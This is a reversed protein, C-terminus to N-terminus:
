ILQNTEPLKLLLLRHWHITTNRSSISESFSVNFVLNIFYDLVEYRIKDRFILLGCAVLTLALFVSLLVTTLNPPRDTETMPVTNKVRKSVLESKEEITKNNPENTIITTKQSIIEERYDVDSKINGETCNAEDSGDECNKLGDCRFWERLCTGDSCKFYPCTIQPVCVVRRLDSKGLERGNGCTCDVNGNILPPLFSKDPYLPHCIDSCFGKKRACPDGHRELSASYEVIPMDQPIKDSEYEKIFNKVPYQAGAWYIVGDNSTFYIDGYEARLAMRNVRPSHKTDLIFEEGTDFSWVVTRRGIMMIVLCDKEHVRIEVTDTALDFTANLPTVNLLKGRSSVRIMNLGGEIVTVVFLSENKYEMCMALLTYESVLQFITSQFNTAISFTEITGRMTDLWYLNEVNRHIFMSSVKGIAKVPLEVVEKLHHPTVKLLRQKDNDAAYINGTIHSYALRSSTYNGLDINHYKKVNPTSDMTFNVLYLHHHYGLLLLNTWKDTWGKVIDKTEPMVCSYRHYKSLLCMYLCPSKKCPKNEDTPDTQILSHHAYLAHLGDKELLVTKNTWSTKNVAFLQSNKKTTWYVTSHSVQINLPIFDDARFTIKQYQTGKLSLSEVVRRHSDVWFIRSSPHDITLGNPWILDENWFTQVSSGDMSAKGICPKMGWDTWFMEGTVPSLAIARPKDLGTTIISVFKLQSEGLVVIEKKESDIYYVNGTWWDVAVGEVRGVSKLNLTKPNTSNIRMRSVKPRNGAESWYIYSSDASIAYVETLNECLLTEQGSLLDVMGIFTDTSFYILSSHEEIAICTLDGQQSFGPWCSCYYSGPSNECVQACLTSNQECENIDTCPGDTSHEYGHDCVCRNISRACQGNKCGSCGYRCISGEDSGDKCGLRGNCVDDVPICSKRNACMFM